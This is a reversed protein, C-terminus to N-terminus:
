SPNRTKFKVEFHCANGSNESIFNNNLHERNIKHRFKNMEKTPFGPGDWLAGSATGGLLPQTQGQLTCSSPFSASPSSSLSRPSSSSNIIVSHQLVSAASALSTPARTAQCLSALAEQLRCGRSARREATKCRRQERRRVKQDFRHTFLGVNGSEVKQPL